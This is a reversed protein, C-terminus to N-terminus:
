PVAQAPIMWLMAGAASSTEMRTSPASLRAPPGANAAARSHAIPCRNPITLRLRDDRLSAIASRNWSSASSAYKALVSSTAAAFL